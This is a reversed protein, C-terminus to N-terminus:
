ESGKRHSKDMAIRLPKEHQISATDGVKLNLSGLDLLPRARDDTVFIQITAYDKQAKLVKVAPYGVIAGSEDLFGLDKLLCRESCYHKATQWIQALDAYGLAELRKVVIWGDMELPLTYSPPVNSYTVEEGCGDCTWCISKAM